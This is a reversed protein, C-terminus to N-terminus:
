PSTGKQLSYKQNFKSIFANANNNDLAPWLQILSYDRDVFKRWLHIGLHEGFIEQFDDKHAEGEFLLILDLHQKTLM